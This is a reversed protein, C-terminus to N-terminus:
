EYPIAQSPYRQRSVVLRSPIREAFLTLRKAPGDHRHKPRTWGSMRSRNSRGRLPGADGGRHLHLESGKQGGKGRRRSGAHARSNNYWFINPRCGRSGWMLTVCAKRRPRLNLRYLGDRPPIPAAAPMM